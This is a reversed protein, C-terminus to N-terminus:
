PYHEFAKEIDEETPEWGEPIPDPAQQLIKLTCETCYNKGFFVEAGDENKAALEAEDHFTLLSDGLEGPDLDTLWLTGCEDCEFKARISILTM